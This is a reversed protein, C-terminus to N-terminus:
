LPNKKPIGAKRPYKESTIKDKKILLLYRTIDNEEPLNYAVKNIFQGGLIHLAKNAGIIEEDASSGKYAVFNGGKKVFPLCYESLVRLESVARATVIDFNERKDEDFAIDEARVNLVEVRDIFGLKEAAQQVFTTKKGVSDIACLTWNPFTIMLPLGPFGGGIGIDMVSLSQSFDINKNLLGIALSDIFHRRVVTDIDSKSVVNTHSNYEDLLTYFEKFKEIQEQTLTINFSEAKEKLLDWYKNDNSM